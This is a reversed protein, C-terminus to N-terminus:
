TPFTLSHSLLSALCSFSFSDCLRVAFHHKRPAISLSEFQSTLAKHVFFFARTSHHPTYLPNLDREREREWAELYIKCKPKAPSSSKSVTDEPTHPLTSSNFLLIITIIQNPWKPSTLAKNKHSHPPLKHSPLNHGSLLEGVHRTQKLIKLM